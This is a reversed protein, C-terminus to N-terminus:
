VFERRFEANSAVFGGCEVIGDPLMQARDEFVVQFHNRRRMRVDVVAGVETLRARVLPM